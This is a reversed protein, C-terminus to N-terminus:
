VHLQRGTAGESGDVDPGDHQSQRGPSPRRRVLQVHVQGSLFAICDHCRWGKPWVTTM